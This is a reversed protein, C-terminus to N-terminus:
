AHFANVTDTMMVVAAVHDTVWSGRIVVVMMVRVAGDVVVGVGLGGMGAQCWEGLGM